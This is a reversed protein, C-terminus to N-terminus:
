LYIKCIDDIPETDFDASRLSDLVPCPLPPPVGVILSVNAKADTLM